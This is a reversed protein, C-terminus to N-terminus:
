GYHGEMLVGAIKFIASVALVASLVFLIERPLWFFNFLIVAAAGLQTLGILADFM